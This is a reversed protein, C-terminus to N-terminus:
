MIVSITTTLNPDMSVGWVVGFCGLGGGSWGFGGGFFVRVMHSIVKFRTKYKRTVM